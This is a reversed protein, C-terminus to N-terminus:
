QNLLFSFHVFFIFRVGAFELLTHLLGNEGIQQIEEIAAEISDKLPIPQDPIEDAEFADPAAPDAQEVSIEESPEPSDTLTEGTM